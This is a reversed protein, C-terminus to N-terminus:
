KKVLFRDVDSRQTKNVVNFGVIDIMNKLDGSHFTQMHGYRLNPISQNEVPVEIHFYSGHKMDSYVRRLANLPDVLHEFCHYSVVLTNDEFILPRDCLSLDYEEVDWGLYSSVLVNVKVVDYGKVCLGRELWYNLVSPTRFGLEVFNTIGDIDLLDLLEENRQHDERSMDYASNEFDSLYDIVSKDVIDPIGRSAQLDKYFHYNEKDLDFYNREGFDYDRKRLIYNEQNRPDSWNENKRIKELRIFENEIDLLSTM